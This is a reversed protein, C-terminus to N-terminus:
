NVTIYDFTGTTAKVKFGVTGIPVTAAPTMSIIQVGDIFVTLATGDFVARAIYPQNPNITLLAKAKKVM